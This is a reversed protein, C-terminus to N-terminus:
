FKVTVGALFNTGAQPYLWNETARERTREGEYLYGWTYGNSSYMQNFVNNILANFQIEKLKSLKLSYSIGFDTTTYAKLKRSHSGTNDLFQDGVYKTRLTM